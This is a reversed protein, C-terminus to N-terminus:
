SPRFHICHGLWPNITFSPFKASFCSKVSISALQTFTAYSLKYCVKFIHGDTYCNDQTALFRFPKVTLEVSICASKMKKYKEKEGNTYVTFGYMYKLHTNNEYIMLVKFITLEQVPAWESKFSVYLNLVVYFPIPKLFYLM